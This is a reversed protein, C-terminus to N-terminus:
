GATPVLWRAVDDATSRWSRRQASRALETVRNREWRELADDLQAVTPHSPVFVGLDDLAENAVTGDVAVVDCGCYAAEVLPLGFGEDVGLSVFCSSRVLVDFLEDSSIGDRHEVRDGLPALLRKTDPSVSVTVVRFRDRVLSSAALLGAAVENRKHAARGLLVIRQTDEPDIAPRHEFQGPGMRVVTVALDDGVVEDLERATHRSIVFLHDAVRCTRLLDARRYARAALGRTRRWRLDYVFHAHRRSPRRAPLPTALWLSADVPRPAVAFRGRLARSGRVHELRWAPAILDPLETVLAREIMGAGTHEDGEIGFLALSAPSGGTTM